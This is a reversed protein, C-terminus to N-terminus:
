AGVPGLTFSMREVYFQVHFRALQESAGAELDLDAFKKFGVNFLSVRGLETKLDTGLLVIAGNMENGELHLGNIFWDRAAQAWAQHDAYSVAIDIDPVTTVVHVPGPENFIGTPAAPKSTFTFSEISAVRACPLTGLELRFNSCLWPAQPVTSPGRMDSGDGARLRVQDAAFTLDIHGSDKSSADLRPFTISTLLANSFDVASQLKYNFDGVLLSGDRRAAGRDFSEQLWSAMGKGMGLGVSATGPAWTVNSVHKKPLPGPGLDNATVDAQMAFGGCSALADVRVGAISLSRRGGAYTRQDAM